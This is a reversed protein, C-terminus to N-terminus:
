KQYFGYKFPSEIYKKNNNFNKEFFKGNDCDFGFIINDDIAIAIERNSILKEDRYKNTAGIVCPFINEDLTKDSYGFIELGDIVGYGKSNLFNIYDEPLKCNFYNEIYSSNKIQM